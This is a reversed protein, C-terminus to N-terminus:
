ERTGQSFVIVWHRSLKVQQKSWTNERKVFLVWHTIRSGGSATNRRADNNDHNLCEDFFSRPGGVPYPSRCPDVVNATEDTAACARRSKAQSTSFCQERVRHTTEERHTVHQSPHQWVVM